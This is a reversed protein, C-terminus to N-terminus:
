ICDWLMLIAARVVSRWTQTSSTRDTSKALIPLPQHNSLLLTCCHDPSPGTRDTLVTDGRSPLLHCQRRTQTENSPGGSTLLIWPAGISNSLETLLLALISSTAPTLPLSHVTRVLAAGATSQPRESQGGATKTHDTESLVCPQKTTTSHRLRVTVLCM